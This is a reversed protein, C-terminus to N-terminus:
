KYKEHLRYLNEKLIENNYKSLLEQKYLKSNNKIPSNDMLSQHTISKLNQKPTKVNQPSINNLSNEEKNKSNISNNNPSAGSIRLNIKVKEKRNKIYKELIVDQFSENNLENGDKKIGLKNNSNLLSKVRHKNFREKRADEDDIKKVTERAVVYNTKNVPNLIEARAIERIIRQDGIFEEMQEYAKKKHIYERDDTSEVKKRFLNNSSLVQNNHLNEVTIRFKKKAVQTQGKKLYVLHDNFEKNSNDNDNVKKGEEDYYNWDDIKYNVMLQSNNSNFSKNLNNTTMYNDEIDISKDVDDIFDSLEQDYLMQSSNMILQPTNENIIITKKKPKEEVKVRKEVTKDIYEKVQAKPEPKYEIMPVFERKIKMEPIIPQPSPGRNLVLNFAKIWMTLETMTQCFLVYERNNKTVLCFSFQWECLRKDDIRVKENIDKIINFSISDLIKSCTHDEKYALTKNKFNLEFWRLNTNGFLRNFSSTKLKRLYGTTEENKIQM